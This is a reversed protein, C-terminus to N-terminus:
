SYAESVFQDLLLTTNIWSYSLLIIVLFYIANTIRKTYIFILIYRPNLSNVASCIHNRNEAGM